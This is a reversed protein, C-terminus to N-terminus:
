KLAGKIINTIQSRVRAVARTIFNDDINGSFASNVKYPGFSSSMRAGGTRTDPFSGFEVGFGTIIISDGRTLLWELWPLSGGDIRQSAAPLSLINSFDTPQMRIEIGGSFNSPKVPTWSVSLSDVIGAIISSSPDSELGFELALVGGSVSAMEPSAALASTIVPKIKSQIVRAASRGEKNIEKALAKKALKEFQLDSEILKISISM